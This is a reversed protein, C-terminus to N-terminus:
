LPSRGHRRLSRGAGAIVDTYINVLAHYNAQETLHGDFYERAHERMDRLSSKDALMIRVAAALGQPDAAAFKRGTVGEKVLEELSGIRSALVPTGCAFSEAIVMPFGEYWESPVVLFEANSVAQLVETRSRMGMFEINLREAKAINELASRLAGDGVIKLTVSPLHRWAAVLTETGKGELLRGVFVVYGGGGRGPLPPDPVFNPKVVVKHAAVGGKTVKSRAFETLAIYRDIDRSYTGIARHLTLMAALTATAALSGRYCRHRVSQLLSKDLCDECPKGDRLFLASPCFFRFNHLTQVIPVGAAKCAGYVSPSLMSFTNHVHVIDPRVDRLVTRLDSRSRQSWITNVAMATKAMLSSDDLDDNCREFVAVQVGRSELMRRENNVAIDEGSPASTRYKNHILLVKM